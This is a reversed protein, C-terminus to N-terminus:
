SGQFGSLKETFFLLKQGAYYHATATLTLLTLPQFASQLSPADRLM